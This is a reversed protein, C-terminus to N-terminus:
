PNADLPKRCYYYVVPSVFVKLRININQAWVIYECLFSDFGLSTFGLFFNLANIFCFANRQSINPEYIFVLVFIEIFNMARNSM